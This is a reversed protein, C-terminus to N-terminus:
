NSARHSYIVFFYANEDNTYQNVDKCLHYVYSHQDKFKKVKFVVKKLTVVLICIVNVLILRDM